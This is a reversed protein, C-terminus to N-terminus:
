GSFLLYSHIPIIQGFRYTQIHINPSSQMKDADFVSMSVFNIFGSDHKYLQTLTLVTDKLM